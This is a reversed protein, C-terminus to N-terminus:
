PFPVGNGRIMESAKSKYFKARVKQRQEEIQNQTINLTAEMNAQATITNNLNELLGIQHDRLISNAQLLKNRSDSNECMDRIKSKVQEYDQFNLNQANILKLVGKIAKMNDKNLEGYYQSFSLRKINRKLSNKYRDIKMNFQEDFNSLSSVVMQSQRIVKAMDAVTTATNFYIIDPIMLAQRKMDDIMKIQNSIVNALHTIQEQARKIWLCLKKYNAYQTFEMAPIAGVTSVNLSILM